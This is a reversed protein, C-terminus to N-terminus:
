FFSSIAHTAGHLISLLIAVIRAVLEEKTM